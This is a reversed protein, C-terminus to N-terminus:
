QAGAPLFTPKHPNRYHRTVSWDSPWSLAKYLVVGPQTLAIACEEPSAECFGYAKLAKLSVRFLRAAEVQTNAAVLAKNNGDLNGAVFCKM